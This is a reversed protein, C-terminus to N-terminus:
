ACSIACAISRLCCAFRPPRRGTGPNDFPGDAHHPQSELLKILLADDLKVLLALGGHHAVQQHDQAAIL